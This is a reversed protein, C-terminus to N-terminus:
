KGVGFWGAVALVCGIFAMRLLLLGPNTNAGAATWSVVVVGNGGNGASSGAGGGGGGYTSGSQGAAGTNGGNGGAGATSTGDALTGSGGSGGAGGNTGSAAAGNGGNGSPGGAGAGGGGSGNIGDGGGTTGSSYTTDGVNSTASGGGKALTITSGGKIASSDGGNNPIFGHTGGAGVTITVTDGSTLSYATIAYAGGLGGGSGSMDSASQGGGICEFYHTGTVTATFTDNSTYTTYAM